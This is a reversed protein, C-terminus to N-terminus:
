IGILLVFYIKLIVILVVLIQQERYHKNCVLAVQNHRVVVCM